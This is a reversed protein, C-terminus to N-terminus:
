SPVGDSNVVFLLYYGAPAVNADPPATATVTGTTADQTFDLAIHRQDTNIGHTVSGSRVLAVSAIDAAGSTAITLQEGYTSQGPASDIVPRPGRFLYPPSFIEATRMLTGSDQGASFVRGDPLLLASSHYMRAGQQPALDTWSNTAPDYLEPVFVPGTYKWKAGGGIALVTGDPLVVANHSTRGHNMPAVATWKPTAATTDYLEASAAPVGNAGDGGFALAKTARDLVVVNGRARSAAMAGAAAWTNTVPNFYNSKRALQLVKGNAMAMMRPYNGVLKTATNPLQTMTDTAADYSDVSLSKTGSVVQGGFTLAARSPVGVTTPYWRKESLLARATWTRTDPDWTDTEAVGRGDQKKLSDHDHGGAVFVDGNALVVHASCFFDRSYPLDAKTIAGTQWNWTGVYSTHDVGAKGEVYQFFLVDGTHTLTAHIAVGGLDFPASWEGESPPDAAHVPTSVLALGTAFAASLAVAM